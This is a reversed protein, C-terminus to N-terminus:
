RELHSFTSLFEWGSSFHMKTQLNFISYKIIKHLFTLNLYESHFPNITEKHKARDRLKFASRSAGYTASLGVAGMMLLAAGGTAVTAGIGGLVGMTGYLIDCAMLTKVPRRSEASEELVFDVEKTDENLSLKGDKPYFIPCAPLRNNELWDHFSKYVRAINDMFIDSDDKMKKFRFLPLTYFSKNFYFSIPLITLYIERSDHCEKTMKKTIKEISDLAKDQYYTLKGSCAMELHAKDWNKPDVNPVISLAYGVFNILESPSLFQPTDGSGGRNFYQNLTEKASDVWNSENIESIMSIDTEDAEMCESFSLESVDDDKSGISDGISKDSPTETEKQPDTM